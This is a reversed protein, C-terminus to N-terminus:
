LSENIKDRTRILEASVNKNADKIAIRGNSSDIEAQIIKTLQSIKVERKEDNLEAAYIGEIKNDPIPRNRDFNSLYLQNAQARYALDNDIKKWESKIQNKDSKIQDLKMNLELSQLGLSYEVVKQKPDKI